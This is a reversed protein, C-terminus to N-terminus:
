GIIRFFQQSRERQLRTAVGSVVTNLVDASAQKANFVARVAHFLGLVTKPISDLPLEATQKLRLTVAVLSEASPTPIGECAALPLMDVDPHSSAAVVNLLFRDQYFCDRSFLVIATALDSHLEEDAALVRPIGDYSDLMRPALLSELVYATANAEADCTDALIVCRLSRPAPPPVV